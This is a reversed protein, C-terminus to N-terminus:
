DDKDKQRLFPLIIACVMVCMVAVVMTWGAIEGLEM